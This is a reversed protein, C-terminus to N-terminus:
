QMLTVPGITTCYCVSGRFLLFTLMISRVLSLSNSNDHCKLSKWINWNIIIFCLIIISYASNVIQQM